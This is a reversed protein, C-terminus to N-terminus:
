RLSSDENVRSPMELERLREELSGGPLFSSGSESQRGGSSTATMAAGPRSKHKARPKGPKQGEEIGDKKRVIDDLWKWAPDVDGDPFHHRLYDRSQQLKHVELAVSFGPPMGRADAPGRPRTEEEADSPRAPLSPTYITPLLGCSMDPLDMVVRIIMGAPEGAYRACPGRACDVVNWDQWFAKDTRFLDYALGYQYADSPDVFTTGSATPPRYRVEDASADPDRARQRQTCMPVGGARLRM